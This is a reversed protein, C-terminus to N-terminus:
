GTAYRDLDVIMLAGRGVGGDTFYIVEPKVQGLTDRL